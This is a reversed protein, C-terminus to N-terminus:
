YILCKDYPNMASGVPCRFERAFEAHNQLVGNVLLRTWSHNQRASFKYSSWGHLQQEREQHKPLCHQQAYALFFLATNSYNLGPLSEKSLRAFDNHPELYGLWNLYARFAVNLAASRQILLQTATANAQLYHLVQQAFCDSRNRYRWGTLGDWNDSELLRVSWHQEDFAQAQAQALQTGLTAYTLAQGYRADYEPPQLLAWPLELHRQVARFVIRTEYAELPDAPAPLNEEFLRALQKSQKAQLLQRLNQWYNNHQLQVNLLGQSHEYKPYTLQLENLKRKAIRQSGEELWAASLSQSLSTRLQDYLQLLEQPLQLSSIPKAYMEGLAAPLLSKSRELCFKDTSQLELAALARYMLYNAVQSANRTQLTRKLQEYYGPAVLYVPKYITREFIQSVYAEFDIDYLQSHMALAKRSYNREYLQREASWQLLQGMGGCLEHELSLVDRAISHASHQAITLWRQLQETARQELAAYSVNTTNLRSSCLHRPMITEPITLYISNEQVNDYNYGIRLGILLDLGYNRRLKAAVQLWDYGHPQWNAGPVAPMGGNQQLLESQFQQQQQQSQM